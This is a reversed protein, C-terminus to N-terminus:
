MGGGALVLRRHTLCPPGLPVRPIFTESRQQTADPQTPAVYAVSGGQRGRVWGGPQARCMPCKPRIYIGGIYESTMGTPSLTDLRCVPCKAGPDRVM